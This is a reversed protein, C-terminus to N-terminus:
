ETANEKLNKQLKRYELPTKNYTSKFAATFKSQTEYGVHRAIEEVSYETATLLEAAKEMRHQKVHNALSMGYESKFMEKLTTTNLLFRRSLEEITVRRSLDEILYDHIEHVLHKDGGHESDHEPCSISMTKEIMLHLLRAQESDAAKYYVEKGDRRSVILGSEKLQKLHHSVAPSTMSVLASINIVCEEVHSLLWFIKIRSTDCMLKMLSAVVSFDETFSLQHLLYGMDENGHSHPLRSEM